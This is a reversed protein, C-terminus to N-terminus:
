NFRVVGLYEALRKRMLCWTTPMLALASNKSAASDIISKKAPIFMIRSNKKTVVVGCNRRILIEKGGILTKSTRFMIHEVIQPAFVKSEQQVAARFHAPRVKLTSLDLLMIILPLYKFVVGKETKDGLSGDSTCRENRGNM